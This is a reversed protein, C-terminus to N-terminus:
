ISEMNVLKYGGDYYIFYLRDHMIDVKDKGSVIMNKELYIECSFANDNYIIFNEIRENAFVPNKLRHNSVLTIDVNHSWNYAREYMYSDKILYPTLKTFGHWSGHLDDTLFLSWNKALQMIDFNDKIYSKADEYSKIEKFDYEISIKNDKKTYEVEKDNKDVIKIDPEYVLNDIKYTKNKIIEIHKTLRELDEVDGENIIEEDSVLKDNIYLKNDKPITVLYNYIGNEFYTKVNAIEWENITLIAMRIYSNTNELEVSSIVKDNIKLDYAFINDHSNKINKKIVLDDSKLLKKVGDTIKINKNEYKSIEFLKDNISETLKGSDTLYKIYNDVISREYIVMSNWVYGLFTIGLIMLISSFILLTKKYLSARRFKRFIKKM